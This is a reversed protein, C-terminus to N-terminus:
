YPRTPESIHILSLSKVVNLIKKHEEAPYRGPAVGALKAEEPTVEFSLGPEEPASDQLKALLTLRNLERQDARASEAWGKEALHMQLARNEAAETAMASARANDARAKEARAAERERFSLSKDFQRAGELRGAVQQRIADAPNAVPLGGPGLTFISRRYM